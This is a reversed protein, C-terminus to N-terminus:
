AELPLCSVDFNPGIAVLHGPPLETWAEEQGQPVYNSVFVARAHPHSRAPEDPGRAPEVVGERSRYYLPLGHAAGFVHTGDSLVMTFQIDGRKEALGPLEYLTAALARRIRAPEHRHVPLPAEEHLHALFLYFVLEPPLTGAIGQRLYPPVRELVRDRLLGGGGLTGSLAFVWDRYRFPQTNEARFEGEPKTQVHCLIRHSRLASLRSGIDGQARLPRRILLPREGAYYACGWHSGEVASLEDIWASEDALFLPLTQTDNCVIGILRSM